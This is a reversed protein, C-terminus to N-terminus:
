TSYILAAAPPPPHPHVQTNRLAREVDYVYKSAPRLELRHHLDSLLPEFGLMIADGPHRWGQYAMYAAMTCVLLQSKMKFNFVSITAGTELIELESYSQAIKSKSSAYTVGSLM